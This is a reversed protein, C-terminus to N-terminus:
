SGTGGDMMEMKRSSSPLASKSDSSSLLPVLGVAQESNTHPFSTLRFAVRAASSQNEFQGLIRVPGAHSPRQFSLPGGFLNRPTGSEAASKTALCALLPRLLRRSQRDTTAAADLAFEATQDSARAAIVRLIEEALEDLTWGPSLPAALLDAIPNDVTVLLDGTEHPQAM